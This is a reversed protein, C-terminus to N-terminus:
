AMITDAETQEVKEETKQKTPGNINEPVDQDTLISIRFDADRYPRKTKPNIGERKKNKWIQIQDEVGIKINEINNDINGSMFKEGKRKSEKQVTNIWLKAFFVINKKQNSNQPNDNTKIEM